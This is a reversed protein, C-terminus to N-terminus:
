SFRFSFMADFGDMRGLDKFIKAAEQYSAEYGEKGQFVSFDSFLRKAEVEERSPPAECGCQHYVGPTACAAPPGAAALAAAEEEGLTRGAAAEWARLEEVDEAERRAM